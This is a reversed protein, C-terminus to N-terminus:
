RQTCQTEVIPVLWPLQKMEAKNQTVQHYSGMDSM